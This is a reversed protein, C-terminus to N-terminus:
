NDIDYLDDDDTDELQKIYDERMTKMKTTLDASGRKELEQLTADVDFTWNRVKGKVLLPQGDLLVAYQPNGKADNTPIRYIVANQAKDKSVGLGTLENVFIDKIASPEIKTNSRMRLYSSPPQFMFRDKGGISTVGHNKALFQQTAQKAAEENGDYFVYQEKYVREIVRGLEKPQDWGGFGLTSDVDHREEFQESIDKVADPLIESEKDNIEAKLGDIVVQPRNAQQEQMEIARLPSYGSSVLNRVAVIKKNFYQALEPNAQVYHEVSQVALNVTNEDNSNFAATIRGVESKEIFSYEIRLQRAKDGADQPSAATNIENKMIVEFAKRHDSNSPNVGGIVTLSQALNNLENEKDAKKTARAVATARRKSEQQLSLVVDTKGKESMDVFMDHNQMNGILQDPDSGNALQRAVWNKSSGDIFAQEQAAVKDSSYAIQYPASRFVERQEVIMNQLTQYDGSIAADMRNDESKMWSAAQNQMAIKNVKEIVRQGKVEGDADLFSNFKQGYNTDFEYATSYKDKLDKLIDQHRKDYETAAFNNRKHEDELDIVKRGYEVEYETRLEDAKAEEEAYELTGMAQVVDALGSALAADASGTRQFGARAPNLSPARAVRKGLQQKADTIRM